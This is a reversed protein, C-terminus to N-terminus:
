RPHVHRRIAHVRACFCDLFSWQLSFLSTPPLTPLLLVLSICGCLSCAHCVCPPFSSEGTALLLLRRPNLPPSTARVFPVPSQLCVTFVLSSLNRDSWYGWSLVCQRAPSWQAGPRALFRVKVPGSALRQRYLDAIAPLTTYANGDLAIASADSYLSGLTGLGAGGQAFASALTACFSEAVQDPAPLAM